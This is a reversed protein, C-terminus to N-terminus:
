INLNIVNENSAWETLDFIVSFNEIKTAFFYKLNSLIHPVPRYQTLTAAELLALSFSLHKVTTTIERM